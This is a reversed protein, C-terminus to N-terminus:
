LASAAGCSSKPWLGWTWECCCPLIVYAFGQVGGLNSLFASTCVSGHVGGHSDRAFPTGRQATKYMIKCTSVKSGMVIMSLPNMMPLSPFSPSFSGMKPAFHRSETQDCRIKPTHSSWPPSQGPELGSSKPEAEAGLGSEPSGGSTVSCRQSSFGM